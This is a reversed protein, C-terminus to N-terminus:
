SVNQEKEKLQQIPFGLQSDNNMKLYEKRTVGVQFVHRM